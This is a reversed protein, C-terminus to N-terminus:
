PLVPYVSSVCFLQSIMVHINIMFFQHSIKFYHELNVIFFMPSVFCSTFHVLIFFLCIRTPLSASCFGLSCKWYLDDGKSKHCGPGHEFDRDTTFVSIVHCWIYLLCLWRPHLLSKFGAWAKEEGGSEAPHTRVSTNEFWCQSANCFVWYSCSSHSHNFTFYDQYLLSCSCWWVYQKKQAHSALDKAKEKAAMATERARETATEALTRSPTEGVSVCLMAKFSVCWCEWGWATSTFTLSIHFVFSAPKLLMCKKVAIYIIDLNCCWFTGRKM